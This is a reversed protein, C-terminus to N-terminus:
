VKTRQSQKQPCNCRSDSANQGSVRNRRVTVAEIEEMKDNTKDYLSM